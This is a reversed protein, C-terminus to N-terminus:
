NNVHLECNEKGEADKLKLKGEVTNTKAFEALSISGQAYKIENL